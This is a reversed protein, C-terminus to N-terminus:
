NIKRYYLRYSCALFKSNSTLKIQQDILFARIKVHNSMYTGNTSTQVFFHSNKSLKVKFFSECALYWVRFAKTGLSSYANIIAFGQTSTLVVYESEGLDSHCCMRYGTRTFNAVKFEINASVCGIECTGDSPDSVKEIWLDLKQGPTPVKIHWHCSEWKVLSTTSPSHVASELKNWSTSAQFEYIHQTKKSWIQAYGSQVPSWLSVTLTAGVCDADPTSPQRQDCLDGAWGSPCLCKSCWNPNPYGGNKCVATGPAGAACNSCGYAKNLMLHDSFAPAMRQGMTNLHYQEKPLMAPQNNISFSDPVIYFKIKEQENRGMM